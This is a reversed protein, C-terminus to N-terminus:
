VLVHDIGKADLCARLDALGRYVCNEARKPPWGLLRAAEPVTHGQLYLVLAARRTEALSGMCSWLADRADAAAAFQEPRQEHEPAFQEPSLEASTTVPSRSQKRVEDIVISHAVRYLYSAQFSGIEEGGARRHLKLLANQVLDERAAPPWRPCLRDIARALVGQIQDLKDIPM